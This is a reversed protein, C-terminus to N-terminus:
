ALVLKAKIVHNLTFLPIRVDQKFIKMSHLNIATQLKVKYTRCHFLFQNLVLAFFHIKDVGGGLFLKQKTQCMTDLDDNSGTKM